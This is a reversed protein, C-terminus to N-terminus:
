NTAQRPSGVVEIDYTERLRERLSTAAQADHGAVALEGALYELYTEVGPPPVTSLL